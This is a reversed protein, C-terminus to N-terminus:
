KVSTFALIGGREMSVLELSEPTLKNVKFNMKESQAGSMTLQVYIGDAELPFSVTLPNEKTFVEWTGSSVASAGNMDVVTKNANFVRVFKPDQSSQWRGQISETIILAGDPKVGGGEGADGFNVPANNTDSPQECATTKNGTKTTVTAEEGAFVYVANQNEFRQGAGAVLPLTQSAGNSSIKVTDNGPFQAVFKTGDACNFSASLTLANGSDVMKGDKKTMLWYGLWAIILILVFILFGKM